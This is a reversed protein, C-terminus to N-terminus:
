DKEEIVFYKILLYFDKSQALLLMNITVGWFGNKAM